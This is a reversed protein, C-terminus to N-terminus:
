LISIPLSLTCTTLQRFKASISSSSENTRIPTTLEVALQLTSNRSTSNRLLIQSLFYLICKHLPTYLKGMKEELMCSKQVEIRWSGSLLISTWFLPAEWYELQQRRVGWDMKGEAHSMSIPDDKLIYWNNLQAFLFFFFSSLFSKKTM